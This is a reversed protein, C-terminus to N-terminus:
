SIQSTLCRDRVRLLTRKLNLAAQALDTIADLNDSAQIWLRPDMVPGLTEATSIRAMFGHLDLLSIQRCIGMLLEQTTSYEEDSMREPETEM